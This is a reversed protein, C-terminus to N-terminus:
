KTIFTQRIICFIVTEKRNEDCLCVHAVGALNNSRAKDFCNVLINRVQIVLVELDSMHGKGIILLKFKLSTKSMVYDMRFYVTSLEM